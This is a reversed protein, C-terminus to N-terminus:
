STLLAPYDVVSPGNQRDRNLWKLIIDFCESKWATSSYTHDAGKVVQLKCHSRGRWKYVNQYLRANNLPIEVDGSGHVILVDGGFYEAQSLPQLGILSSFFQAGLEFGQFNVVGDKHCQDYLEKGVIGVIDKFPEAVPSLLILKNVRNDHAASVTAVAGGLSHGLLVIRSDDIAPYQAVFDIVRRTEEVQRPVSIDKYEGTSDGCGSFDFRLVAFGGQCLERAAKVFMRHQGTKSSIFGHCIVVVPVKEQNFVEPLHLIGYLSQEQTNIIVQQEM